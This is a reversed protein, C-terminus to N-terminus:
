RPSIAVCDVAFSECDAVVARGVYEATLSRVAERRVAAPLVAVALEIMRLREADDAASRILACVLTARAPRNLSKKLSEAARDVRESDTV